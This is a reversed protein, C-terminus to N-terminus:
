ILVLNKNTSGFWGIVFHKSEIYGGVRVGVCVSFDISPEFGLNQNAFLLVVYCM